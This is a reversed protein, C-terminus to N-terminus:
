SAGYSMLLRVVDANRNSGRRRMSALRLPTYGHNDQVNFLESVGSGSRGSAKDILLRVIGDKGRKAAYHMPTRGGKDKAHDNAGHQLLLHALHTANRRSSMSM